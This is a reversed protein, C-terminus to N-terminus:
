VLAGEPTIRTKGGLWPHLAEPLIVSGDAQQGNELVAILCRGVALGSGNLTAIFEPKGGAEPRFRANMRRAQFQGCTSCSSIERYTNQGPLWVEIDHTKQSGFGMDGTCLVVTRYPLGLKELIAQACSTMREHEALAQDPHCLTVMEVKEFQHQRLIGTTDKGASGAESRFCHTHATMRLPLDAADYIEGAAFNTMTVESTPILWWGNTTQYSDEAFKPLNGTGFMAEDKVLVPTWTETLGHETTHTDVMFQALARHVRAVAGKLVMFRSGSLKAAMALDLGPKVAPIDFHELPRFALARPTGWRRIEVNETEDKGFPVSDLPLNPIEALLANLRAVEEGAEANMAAVEAKKEAVLARLREFEADDGRAKAAGVEKSARNQDAQATEAALIRARRGEDLALLTAAMPALGRRALAADFAEPNERIARIDHM